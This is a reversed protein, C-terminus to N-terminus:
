RLPCTSLQLSNMTSLTCAARRLRVQAMTLDRCRFDASMGAFLRCPDHDFTAHVVDGVEQSHACRFASSVQWCVNPM